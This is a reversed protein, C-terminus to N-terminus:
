YLTCIVTDIILECNREGTHTKMHRIMKGNNMAKFGCYECQIKKEELHGKLHVRLTGVRSFSKGCLHCTHDRKGLHIADMHCRLQHKVKFKADCFDCFMFKEEHLKSHGRLGEKTKFASMCIECVWNRVDTHIQRHMQLKYRDTINGKGCLDCEYLKVGDVIKYILGADRDVKTVRRSRARARKLNPKHDIEAEDLAEYEFVVNDDDAAMSKKKSKKKKHVLNIHRKFNYMSPSIYKSFCLAVQKSCIPCAINATLSNGKKIFDVHFNARDLYHELDVSKLFTAVNDILKTTIDDKRSFDTIIRPKVIPKETKVIIAPPPPPETIADPLNEFTFEVSVQQVPPEPETEEKKLNRRPRKPTSEAVIVAKKPTPPKKVKEPSVVPEKKQSVPSTIQEIEESLKNMQEQALGPVKLLKRMDMPQFKFTALSKYDFGLYQLRTAKDELDVIAEFTGDKVCNEVDEITSKDLSACDAVTRIGYLELVLGVHGPLGVQALIAKADSEM